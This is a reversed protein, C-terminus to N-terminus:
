LGSPFTQEFIMAIILYTITKHVRLSLLEHKHQNWEPRLPQSMLLFSGSSYRM